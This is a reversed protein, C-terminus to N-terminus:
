LSINEVVVVRPIGDLDKKVAVSAGKSSFLAVVQEEQAFGIEM